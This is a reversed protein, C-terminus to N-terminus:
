LLVKALLEVPHLATRGAGDHIQHRCSTGPACVDVDPRARVAPLLMQEGIQMSLDYRDTTFGFSGAMGCCGTPLVTLADGFVRRLLAASSEVGWLAKQHCHGHLMVPDLPVDAAGGGRERPLVPRRPHENWRKELFEDVLFARAALARVAEPPVVMKLDLWDDKIASLCSPELALLAVARSEDMARQVQRFTTACERAASALQGTSILSRGCCGTEPLVVRYGFAELLEVAARGIHPESALAFCDPFLVVAPLSAGRDSSTSGPAHAAAASGVVAHAAAANPSAAHEGAAGGHAAREAQSSVNTGRERERRAFWRDLPAGVPPLSRRRDIGAVMEALAKVVPLRALVNALPAVRAALRLPGRVHGFLRAQLPVRGKEAYAQAQYEAKLKAIDVNSPCESKCAKCSLCLRLTAHVDPDNWSPKVATAAAGAVASGMAGAAPGAGSPGGLQGTIALRLHNGRGRTAHREDLLARYSPCMTGGTMRRCMGAGNCLEVAHQFGAHDPDPSALRASHAAGGGHTADDSAYRFFTSVPPVSAPVGAPDVRLARAAMMPDSVDVKIGPNMIGQPDWVAKCEALARCIADGFYRRQLATRSRGSGHEGSLAGHFRVVLDTVEEGIRLMADKDAPDRIDLMPRIHLCGVSAHAYFSARTGYRALIAKFERIFQPLTAPDVATDEVFGLPKRHGPVGHLLPEGAKRLLWANAMSPADTYQQMPLGPLRERLARLADTVEAQTQGFYEVYMVAGLPVSAGAADTGRPMLDVYAAYERNARALGIIVDDVMEVAAPHTSLMAGLDTLAEDVGAFGMIALGKFRPAAVLKLHAGVITCLTGESGCVFHALNVRDFTGPTSRECQDLFMDLNYGDVHRLIRPFKARIEDRLPWLAAHLREALRQQVPDRECAGEELRHMDGTALVVDLGLLNEVTRGYLISHAGSSNNGIMGAVTNHSSTAPDPGFMLGHPALAANLQDNVVGPEVRCSRGPADIELIRRCSESFDIVVARNVTQGNLSTGGGRPLVAIGREACYRVVLAAKSPERPVVVGVPEVQYMSADTAYLLRGARDFRVDPIDLARLDEAM